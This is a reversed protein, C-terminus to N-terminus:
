TYVVDRAKASTDIQAAALTLGGIFKHSVALM